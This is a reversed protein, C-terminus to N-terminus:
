KTKRSSGNLRKNHKLLSVAGGIGVLSATASPEPVQESPVQLSFTFLGGNNVGESNFVAVDNPFIGQITKFRTLGSLDNILNSDNSQIFWILKPESSSGVFTVDYRLVDNNFNINSSGASEFIRQLGELGFNLGPINSSSDTTLKTVMVNGLPCVPIGCIESNEFFGGPAINFNQIAGLFTGDQNLASTNLDFTFFSTNIASGSGKAIGAQASQPVLCASITFVTAAAIVKKLNNLSMSFVM